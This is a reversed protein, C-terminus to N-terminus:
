RSAEGPRVDTGVRGVCQWADATPYELRALRFASDLDPAEIAFPEGWQGGHQARMWRKSWTM